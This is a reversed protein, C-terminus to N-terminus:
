KKGPIFTKAIEKVTSATTSFNPDFASLVSFVAWLFVGVTAYQAIEGRPAFRTQHLLWLAVAPLASALLVRVVRLVYSRLQPGSLKEPEARSLGDWDGSAACVLSRAVEEVFRDRTDPMPTSVWKKLGRLATAMQQVRDRLWVDTTVDGTRLRRPLDREICLAVTEVEAMLQRKFDINTWKAWEREVLSLITVLGTVLVVDPYL